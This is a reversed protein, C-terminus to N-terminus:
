DTITKKLIIGTFRAGVGHFIIELHSRPLNSNKKNNKLNSKM